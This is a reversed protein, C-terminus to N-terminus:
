QKTWGDPSYVFGASIPIDTTGNVVRRRNACTEFLVRQMDVIDMGADLPQTYFEEILTGVQVAKQQALNAGVSFGNSVWLTNPKSSFTLSPLWCLYGVSIFGDTPGAVNLVVIQPAATLTGCNNPCNAMSVNPPVPFTFTTATPVTAVTGCVNVSAGSGATACFAQRVALWHPASTTYTATGGSVSISLTNYTVASLSSAMVLTCLIAWLIKM